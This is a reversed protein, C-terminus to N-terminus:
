DKHCHSLMGLAHALRCSAIMLHADELLDFNSIVEELAVFKLHPAAEHNAEVEVAYPYVVEPTAGPTPFYPGGLEWCRRARLDFEGALAGALFAPLGTRHKVALPLRWAPVVAIQSRGTFTQVAPLDRRELGIFVQDGTKAVPLATVTSKSLGKPVVYEFWVEALQEGSASREVFAGRRLSLFAPVAGAAVSEFAARPSPVLAQALSASLAPRRQQASVAIPAGIWPGAPQGLALLLKYTTQLFNKRM